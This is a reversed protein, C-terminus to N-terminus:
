TFLLFIIYMGRKTLINTRGHGSPRVQESAGPVFGLSSDSYVHIHRYPIYINIACPINEELIETDQSHKTNERMSRQMYYWMCERM